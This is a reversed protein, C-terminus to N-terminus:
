GVVRITPVPPAQVPKGIMQQTIDTLVEAATWNWCGEAGVPTVKAWAARTAGTIVTYPYGLLNHLIAKGRIKQGNLILISEYLAVGSLGPDINLGEAQFTPDTKLESAWFGLTEGSTDFSVAPLPRGAAKFAEIAGISATQAVVGAVPGLTPLVTAVASETTTVTNEGDVFAVIHVKPYQAIVHRQAAVDIANPQSGEVGNVLIVNGQGHIENMVVKAEAAAWATMTDDVNYECAASALSDFVVVKIGAACASQIVNNLATASAADIDIACVHALILSDIQTIQSSATNEASVDVRYGAILGAAKASKAAATFEAVMTKRWDNGIYSDSM